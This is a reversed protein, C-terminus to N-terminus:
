GVGVENCDIEQVMADPPLGLMGNRDSPDSVGLLICPMAGNCHNNDSKM